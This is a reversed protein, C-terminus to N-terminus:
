GAERDIQKNRLINFINQSTVLMDVHGIGIAGYVEGIVAQLAGVTEVEVRGVSQGIGFKIWFEWCTFVIDPRAHPM